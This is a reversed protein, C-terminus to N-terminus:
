FSFFLEAHAFLGIDSSVSENSVAMAEYMKYSISINGDSIFVDKSNNFLFQNKMKDCM